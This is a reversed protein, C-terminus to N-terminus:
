AQETGEGLVDTGREKEAHCEACYPKGNSVAEAPDGCCICNARRAPAVGGRTELPLRGKHREMYDITTNIVHGCRLCVDYHGYTGAAHGCCVCHRRCAQCLGIRRSVGQALRTGCSMCFRRHHAVAREVIRSKNTM